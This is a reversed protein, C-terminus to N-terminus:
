RTLAPQFSVSRTRAWTPTAMSRGNDQKQNAAPALRDLESFPFIWILPVGLKTVIYAARGRSILTRDIDMMNGPRNQIVIWQPEGEDVAALQRPLEGTRRLYLWSRPFTRSEITRNPLTNETLWRRADSTLADWYYTAEMGLMTAGPLGGVLPSFYSIPVPMMVAVSIAGEALAATIAVKAWRGSWHFLQRSGLGGLLALLGFAPLFLRVGDHGPVHPMARLVMLLTWHALVLVGFSETRWRRIATWLGLGALVLFGVPTVFVTWVLTNYWPLSDTPTVYTTGLFQIPITITDSRSLNSNLFRFLGVLPESWWPPMIALLVLPAIVAGVALARFGSRSRYLVTWVLFPIPVFWGTLKTGAAFGLLVGFLACSLWRRRPRPQSPDSVVANAFVIVALIWLSSLVADYSAYHGHGFLNPQLVWSGAALAAPWWGWRTAVLSFIAGATLSFLVIPGLRARPLERWSPTVFDGLLGLLAYFSPHGHPEARAFPWFWALVQPHSLLKSRTDIQDRRPPPISVPGPVLEDDATRPKWEAAFRAPDRLGRFWERLREERGLTYGEDWAIAMQPETLLMLMATAVSVGAGVLLACLRAKLIGM